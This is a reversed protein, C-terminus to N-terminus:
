GNMPPTQGWPRPLSLCRQCLGAPAAPSWAAPLAPSTRSGCCPIWAPIRRPLDPPTLITHPPLFLMGSGALPSLPPPVADGPSPCCGWPQSLMRLAPAADGPNPRCGWLQSLMGLTPLADRTSPSCGWLHSLMELAPAADGPSPCCGARQERGGARDRGLCGLKGM